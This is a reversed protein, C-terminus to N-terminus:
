VSGSDFGELTNINSSIQNQDGYEGDEGGQSLASRLM